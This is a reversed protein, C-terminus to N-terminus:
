APAGELTADEVVIAGRRVEIRYHFRWPPLELTLGGIVAAKAVPAGKPTAKVKQWVAELASELRERVAAPVHDIPKDFRLKFM